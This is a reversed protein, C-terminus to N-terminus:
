SIGYPWGYIGSTLLLGSKIDEAKEKLQPVDWNSWVHRGNLFSAEPSTLWVM